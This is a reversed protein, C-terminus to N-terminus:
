SEWRSCPVNRTMSNAHGVDDDDSTAEATQIRGPRKPAHGHLDRQDVTTVMM